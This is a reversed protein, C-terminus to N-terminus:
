MRTTVTIGILILMTVSPRLGFQSYCDAMDVMDDGFSQVLQRVIYDPSLLLERGGPRQLIIDVCGALPLCGSRGRCFDLALMKLPFNRSIYHCVCEHREGPEDYANWSTCYTNFSYWPWNGTSSYGFLSCPSVIVNSVLRM